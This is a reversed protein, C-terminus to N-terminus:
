VLTALQRLFGAQGPLIRRLAEDIAFWEVRDIEPFEQQKGSRPPWEMRFLNSRMQSPDCDGAVAWAHVVKGGPQRLPSLATFAGSVTFGTEEHFERRAADLPPEQADVEGKPISWAGSDRKAWFPGGPHALLVELIGQRKRYVLLGASVKAV